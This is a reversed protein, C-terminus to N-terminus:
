LPLQSKIPQDSPGTIFSFNANTNQPQQNGAESSNSSVTATFAQGRNFLEPPPALGSLHREMPTLELSNSYVLRTGIWDLPTESDSTEDAVSGIWTFFAENGYALRQSADILYVPSDSKEIVKALATKSRSKAM